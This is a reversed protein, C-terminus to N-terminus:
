RMKAILRIRDGSALDPHKVGIVRATSLHGEVLVVQLRSAELGFSPGAQDVDARFIDGIAIGEDTGVDLFANAGLGYVPREESFGLLTATVNSEVPSPLAGSRPTYDPARRVRDGVQIRGLESSVMAVIGAENLGTVVLVGTPRQVAGIEREERVTRFSQLLDGVQFRAGEEAAIMVREGWRALGQPTRDAHVHSFGSLTGIFGVEGGREVLWDSAYVLGLPVAATGVGATPVARATRAESVMGEVVRAEPPPSYFSTRQEPSPVITPCSPSQVRGSFFLTRDEPAPCPANTGESAQVWVGGAPLTVVNEEAVVVEGQTIVMVGQVPVTEQGEGPIVLLQGPEILNPDQIQSSNAEYILPWRYPNGLYREALSWLTEGKLVEHTSRQGQVVEQASALTTLILFLATVVVSRFM